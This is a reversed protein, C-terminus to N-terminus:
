RAKTALAAAPAAASTEAGVDARSAEALEDLQGLYARAGIRELIERAEREIGPRGDAERPAVALFDLMTQALELELGLERLHSWADRYAVVADPWRSELALVGAELGRRAATFARGRAGLALLRDLAERATVGDGRLISARALVGLAAPGNLADTAAQTASVIADDFRGEALRVLAIGMAIAARGGEDYDRGAALASLEDIASSTNRGRVADIEAQGVLLTPRDNAELEDLGIAALEADIWDWDGTPLSSEIANGLGSIVGGLYGYRRALELGRRGFEVSRRPDDLHLAVCLNIAARGAILGFGRAEALRLAAELLAEGERIRGVTAFITGKTALTDATIATLELREADVLARDAWTVTAEADGASILGRALVSRLEVLLSDPADTALDQEAEVLMPIAESPRWTRILTSALGATARAAARRDGRERHLRVAEDLQRMGLDYHGLNRNALGIRELLEVDEAPDNTVLRARELYAIANSHSGLATAREAAARLAIRAQAGVAEGEAGDPAAEYADIYHTALVGALEDDGLSEFYRAAALHKTRRDRKALTAYAVERVLAQTFGFQGREPSRPDTDLALIERRVLARLRQEVEGDPEDRVAAIAAAAFTQGLVSADQLLARDSPELADLRAAILAQLTAPVRLDGLDGVVRYSGDGEELRGDAVLMRVMEVAYLPIGDARDLIARVTRAPLDPVLGALMERMAPEPLAGLPLAVLDSRGGGWGEHRELLEPRALTLILIPYGISWDSLHNIFELVGADAWQLDEFVLVTTGQTAIQEFFTRLAAFLEERGGAPAEGVGLLFLLAPELRRRDAESSVYEALSDAIRQRTTAEDDTEALKARRRVMEGLAWFTVGEGFAPSRGQHWYIPELLGDIYKLFEWALRSKGVGAQGTVSVLRVRRERSTARLVDKLLRLEDDRGVFPAEIGESRGLGGREAVVRLARWATIPAVKGRLLQDGAPEFTIARNAGLYTSEGVLVIGPPAISQLRSATNVLDGAVLGHGTAEVNVAAEGTLVGVRLALDLDGEDRGLRKIADVLDLGARVAREPDDERAVPTGWVAMVADGIFKEVTGGYREITERCLDFYAALFERVREPDAGDSRATFGALDAFLVSVVRRETGGSAVGPVPRTPVAPATAGAQGGDAGLRTGCEACFKSGPQNPAGCAPCVSSLRSGCEVCFKAGAQNATGCSPCVV